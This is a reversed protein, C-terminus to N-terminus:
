GVARLEVVVGKGRLAAVAASPPLRALRIGDDEAVRGHRIALEIGNMVSPATLTEYQGPVGAGGGGSEKEQEDGDDVDDRATERGRDVKSTDGRRLSDQNSRGGANTGTTGQDEPRPVSVRSEPGPPQAPDQGPDQGPHGDMSADFRGDAGPVVEGSEQAPHNRRHAALKAGWETDLVAEGFVGSWAGTPAVSTLMGIGEAEYDVRVVGDAIFSRRLRAASKFRPKDEGKRPQDPEYGAAESIRALGTMCNEGHDDDADAAMTLLAAVQHPKYRLRKAAERARNWTPSMWTM